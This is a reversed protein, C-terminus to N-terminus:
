KKKLISKLSEIEKKLEEERNCSDMRKKYEEDTLKEMNRPIMSHYINGNEINIVQYGLGYITVKFNKSTTENTNVKLYLTGQRIEYYNCIGSPQLDEPNLSYSYVNIGPAPCASHYKYPQVINYFSGKLGPAAIVNQGDNSIYAEKTPNSGSDLLKLNLNKNSWTGLPNSDKPNQSPTTDGLMNEISKDKLINSKHYEEGNDTSLTYNSIYNYGIKTRNPDTRPISTNNYTYWVTDSSDSFDPEFDGEEYNLKVSPLGYWINQIGRGGKMGPGFSSEPTGTFGSYDYSNTFNYWQKGGRSQTFTDDVFDNRQVVWILEKIPFNFTMMQSYSDDNSLTTPNSQKEYTEVFYFLKNNTFKQIESNELHIYDILLSVDMKDIDPLVNKGISSMFSNATQHSAWILDNLNSFRISFTIDSDLACIPLASGTNKTFWFPLPIYLTYPDCLKQKANGNGKRSQIQTLGPVNGVMEAYAENKDSNTLERWLHIWEGSIKDIENGNITISSEEILKHGVWNLWRFAKYENTPITDHIEPLTIELYINSILSGQFPILRDISEGFNVKGFPISRTELSFNTHKKYVAKWFTIVPQGKTDIDALIHNSAWSNNLNLIGIGM